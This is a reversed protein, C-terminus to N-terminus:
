WSFGAGGMVSAEGASLAGGFSVSARNGIARQYGIAMAAEGGQSGFGVGIRNRGALGATNMAMGAYAGSMASLRDIRRDTEHFRRDVEGRFSDFDDQLGAFVSNTYANASDLTVTAINDTYSNASTLTAADGTAMDSRIASERTDTYGNASALTTADGAAMDSRIASERTDTYENAVELAVGTAAAVQGDTYANAAGLTAVDGTDAHNQAAELTIAAQDDIASRIATEVDQGLKDATIAGDAIDSTGITGAAIDIGTISGSAIDDGTISGNAIKGGNISNDAIDDSGVSGDVIKGGDVSNGALDANNVSNDQIDDSTVAGDAIDASDITGNCIIEDGQEATSVTFPDAGPLDITVTSGCYEGAWASAHFAGLLAVALLSRRVRRISTFKNM